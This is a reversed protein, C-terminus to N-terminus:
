LIKGKAQIKHHSKERSIVMTKTKSVNIAMGKKNMEAIYVDLSNQLTKVTKAMLVMNDSYAM